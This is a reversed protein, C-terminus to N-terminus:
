RLQFLAVQRDELRWLDARGSQQAQAACRRRELLHQRAAELAPEAGLGSGAGTIRPM